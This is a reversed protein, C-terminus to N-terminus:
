AIIDYIAMEIPCFMLFYVFTWIDKMSFKYLSTESLISSRAGMTDLDVESCVHWLM